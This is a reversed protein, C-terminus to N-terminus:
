ALAHVWKAIFCKDRSKRSGLQTFVYLEYSSTPFRLCGSLKGAVSIDFYRTAGQWPIEKIVYMATQM